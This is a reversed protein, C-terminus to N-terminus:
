YSFFFLLDVGSGQMRQFLQQQTSSGQLVNTQLRLWKTLEYELIVNTQSADGIGQQVRVYLNEGIQQGLTIQPGGGTEPAMNIEFENLNLANGLSKALGGAVAGTAMAEARQVLTTQQGEGLENVPQNFVILALIDSQELPPTSTLIIEPQQVTGRVNVRATVSRIVREARIDLVPENPDGEFRVTGDRLLTFRRGQFDYFGRVTNVVGILQLPGGPEKQARLDGGLTLNMAGLSTSAGPATLESAKVVLDDPVTLHVNLKLAEFGTPAPKQGPDSTPTTVYETQKTAYASPGIQALIPDLNIVGTTVGLDGEVRPARLEGTLRLDSNIRVNGMKNDIVKFDDAGVYIEVGGLQRERIALDGSINLPNSHNDLVTISDIHVRDPQLDIRGDLDTYTVGTPEVTFAANSITVAGNPRPDDATGTIDVKAQLTGKV